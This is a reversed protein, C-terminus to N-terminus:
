SKRGRHAVRLVAPYGGPSGCRDLRVADLCAGGRLHGHCLRFPDAPHVPRSQTLERRAPVPALRVPVRGERCELRAAERACCKPALRPDRRLPQLPPPTAESRRGLRGASDLEHRHLHRRAGGHGDIRRHLDHEALDAHTDAGAEVRASQPPQELDEPHLQQEPIAVAPQENLNQVKGGKMQEFKALVKPKTDRLVCDLRRLVTMPLIVKGYDAQKYDGRLLDAVSWLFNALDSFGNFARGNGISASVPPTSSPAVTAPPSKPPM